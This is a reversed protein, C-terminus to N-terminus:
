HTLLTSLCSLDPKLGSFNSEGPIALLNAENHAMSGEIMQAVESLDMTGLM